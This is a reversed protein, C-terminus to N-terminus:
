LNPLLKFRAEKFCFLMGLPCYLSYYLAMRYLLTRYTVTTGYPCLCNRCLEPNIRNIHYNLKCHGTRFQFITCQDQRNLNNIADSLNPKTMEAYMDRGTNGTDWRHLWEEKFNNKLMQSIAEYQLAKHTRIHLITQSIM